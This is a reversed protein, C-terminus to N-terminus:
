GSVDLFQSVHLPKDTTFIHYIEQFLRIVFPELLLLSFTERRPENDLSLKDYPNTPLWVEGNQIVWVCGFQQLQKHLALAYGAIQLHHSPKGFASSKIDIVTCHINSSISKLHLLDPKLPRLTAGIKALEPSLIEMSVDLILQWVFVEEHTKLKKSAEQLFHTFTMKEANILIETGYKKTLWQFVKQEFTIGREKHGELSHDSSPAHVKDVSQLFEHLHRQCGFEVEKSLRSLVIPRIAVPPKSLTNVASSLPLDDPVAITGIGNQIFKRITPARYNAIMKNVDWFKDEDLVNRLNKPWPSDRPLFKMIVEALAPIDDDLIEDERNLAKAGKRICDVLQDSAFNANKQCNM